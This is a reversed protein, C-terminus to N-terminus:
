PKVSITAAKAMRDAALDASSLPLCAWAEVASCAYRCRQQKEGSTRGPTLSDFRAQCGQYGEDDAARSPPGL